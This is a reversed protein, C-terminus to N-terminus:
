LPTSPAGAVSYPVAPENKTPCDNCKTFPTTNAMKYATSASGSMGNRLVFPPLM